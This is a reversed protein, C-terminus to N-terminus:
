ELGYGKSERIRKTVDAYWDLILKKAENFGEAPVDCLVEVTLHPDLNNAGIYRVKGLNEKYVVARREKYPNECIITKATERVVPLKRISQYWGDMEFETRLVFKSM